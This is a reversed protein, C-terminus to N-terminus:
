ILDKLDVEKYHSCIYGWHTHIKIGQEKCRSCFAIDTGVTRMGTEDRVETFPNKIKELVSRKILMCGTGVADAEELSYGVIPTPQYEEGKKDYVNYYLDSIQKDNVNIPAYFPTPLGIIDQNLEVLELVNAPPPNDADIFLLFDNDTKLFAEVVRNRHEGIGRMASILTDVKYKKNNLIIQCLAGVVKHHIERDTIVAILIKTEM